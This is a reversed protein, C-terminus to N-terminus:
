QGGVLDYLGSERKQLVLTRVMDKTFDGPHYAECISPLLRIFIPKATLDKFDKSMGNASGLVSAIQVHYIMGYENGMISYEFKEESRYAELFKAKVAIEGPKLKDLDAGTSWLRMGRCAFGQDHSLLIAAASLLLTLAPSACARSRHRSEAALTRREHREIELFGTVKGM